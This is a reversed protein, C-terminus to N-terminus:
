QRDDCWLFIKDCSITYDFSGGAAAAAATAAVAATASTSGENDGGVSNM